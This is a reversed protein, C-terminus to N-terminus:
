GRDDADPALVLAVQGSARAPPGPCIVRVLAGPALSRETGTLYGVLRGLMPQHGVVLIRGSVAGLGALAQLVEAPEVDPELADLIEVAVAPRASRALIEASAVARLLPSSFARDPKWGELALRRALWQLSRAGAPSLPRLRDGGPASPGAEGHRVIDLQLAVPAPDAPGHGRDLGPQGPM